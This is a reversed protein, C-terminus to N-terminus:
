TTVQLRSITKDQEIGRTALQGIQRRMVETGDKKATIQRERGALSDRLHANSRRLEANSKELESLRQRVQTDCVARDITINSMSFVIPKSDRM